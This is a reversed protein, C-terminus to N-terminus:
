SANQHVNSHTMYHRPQYLMLVRLLSDPSSGVVSCLVAQVRYFDGSMFLLGAYAPIEMNGSRTHTHTNTWIGCQSVILM